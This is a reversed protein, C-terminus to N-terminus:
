KCDKLGKVSALDASGSVIQETSLEKKLAKWKCECSAENASEGGTCGKMFELKAVETPFKGKCDSAMTKMAEVLRPDGAGSGVLASHPLTKRLSTWACNCYASKREDGAVCGRLFGDKVDAESLKSSCVSVTKERMEVARPDDPSLPKSLDADKFIEKFQEFGCACFDKSPTKELCSKMFGERQDEINGAPPASAQQAPPAEQSEAAPPASPQNGAASSGGCAFLFLATLFLKQNGSM